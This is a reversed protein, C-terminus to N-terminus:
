NFLSFRQVPMVDPVGSIQPADASATSSVRPKDALPRTLLDALGLNPTQQAEGQDAVPAAVGAFLDDVASTPAQVVIEESLAGAQASTQVQMAAEQAAAAERDAKEQAEKAAAVKAQAFSPVSAEFAADVEVGQLILDGHDRMKQEDSLIIMLGHIAAFELGEIHGEVPLKNLISEITALVPKIRADLFSLGKLKTQIGVLNQRFRQTVRTRLSGSEKDFLARKMIDAADKAIERYLQGSLGAAQSLIKRNMPSDDAQTPDPKGVPTGAWTWRIREEVQDVTLQAKQLMASWDPYQAIFDRQRQPYKSLFDARLKVFKEEIDDLKKALDPFEAKPIAYGGMFRTGVKLCEREAERDLNHFDALLSAPFIAKSGLKMLEPPPLETKADKVKLEGVSLSSEASWIRQQLEVLLVQDLVNTSVNPNTITQM